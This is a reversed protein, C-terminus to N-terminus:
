SIIPRLQLAGLSFHIAALGLFINHPYYNESIREQDVKGIVADNMAVYTGCVPDRFTEEGKPPTEPIKPRSKLFGQIIKYGVYFLVAFTLLRILGM